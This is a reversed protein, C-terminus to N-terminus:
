KNKIRIREEIVVDLVEGDQWIIRQEGYGSSPVKLITEKGRSMIRVTDSEKLTQNGM